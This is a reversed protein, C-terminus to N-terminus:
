DLATALEAATAYRDESRKALCRRCVSILKGPVEKTEAPFVVPTGAVVQAVTDRVSRGRHPPQGFLLYFLVAGLGWVDTRPSIPGWCPDVQEPAMFAPTGALLAAPAEDALRVALGFDAIRIQGLEDLLLNAPKLDCHIVGNDHAAQVIRAAQAIWAAAEQASITRRRAVDHLNGGEIMDMVLFWGGGPTRGIGLIGVIGPHDLAAVTRAERLFREVVSPEGALAKRLFKVAVLRGTSRELSRYVKGTSGAGIQQQLIYDHWSVDADTVPLSPAPLLRPEAPPRPEQGRSVRRAAPTKISKAEARSASRTTLIKRAAEVWRRVTRDTCGLRVAIERQEYGQLVLEVVERGRHPLKALIAELEEVAIAAQDPTPEKGAVHRWVSGDSTARERATSRRRAKHRAGQHYLKHLTVEVLLRWLDGSQGVAFRGQRAAVFFSRYASQVIDEPDVRVALRVALRSRALRTLREVYRAFVEDAAREDGTQVRRLLEASAYGSQDIRQSM